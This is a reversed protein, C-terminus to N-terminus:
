ADTHNNRTREDIDLKLETIKDNIENRFDETTWDDESTMIDAIVESITIVFEAEIDIRGNYAEMNWQMDDFKKAIFNLNDRLMYYFTKTSFKDGIKDIIRRVIPFLVTDFYDNTWKYVSFIILTALQEFALATMEKAEGQLGEIFGLKDWREVYEDLKKKWPEYSKMREINDFVHERMFRYDIDGVNESLIMEDVKNM